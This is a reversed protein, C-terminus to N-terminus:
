AQSANKFIHIYLLIGDMTDRRCLDTVKKVPNLDARRSGYNISFRRFLIKLTKTFVGQIKNNNYEKLM